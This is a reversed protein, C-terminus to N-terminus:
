KAPEAKLRAQEPGHLSVVHPEALTGRITYTENSGNTARILKLALERNMSATGSLAFKGNPSDLMGQNVAFKSNQLGVQGSFRSFKLPGEDEGLSIHPLNGDRIEFQLAGEASNWFEATCEGKIEYSASATGSIVRYKTMEALRAMSIGTLSGSGGCSGAKTTFDAQWDGLYRGGLFDASLEPVQLKGEDLSLSASAHTAVLSQVQLRDVTLHGSARLNGLFSPATQASSELVRYWPREKVKPKVWESFEDLVIQNTNLEFHLECANPTGCGRPMELSGTWLANAIHANLKRVQAEDPL